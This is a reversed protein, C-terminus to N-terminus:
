RFTKGIGAVCILAFLFRVCFGPYQTQTNSDSSSLINKIYFICAFTKTAQM